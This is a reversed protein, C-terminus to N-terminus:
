ILGSAKMEKFKALAQTDDGNYQKLLALYTQTQKQQSSASQSAKTSASSAAIKAYAADQTAKQAATLGGNAQLIANNQDTTQLQQAITFANQQQSAAQQQQQLTLNALADNLQKQIVSQQLNGELGAAEKIGTNYTQASAKHQVLNNQNGQSNSAVGSLARAQDNAANSGQSALVAAADGIGLKALQNSVADRTGNYAENIGAAAETGNQKTDAGAADYQKAIGPADAAYSGQLQKYMAAIRSTSDAANSREQNMMGSYDVGGGAYQQAMALYDAFTKPQPQAAQQQASFMRNAADISDGRLGAHVESNGATSPRPAVSATSASKPVLGGFVGQKGISNKGSFDFPNYSKKKAM